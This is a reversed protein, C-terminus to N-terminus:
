PFSLTKSKLMPFGSRGGGSFNLSTIISRIVEIDRDATMRKLLNFAYNFVDKDEAVHDVIGLEVAKDSNIIDYKSISIFTM